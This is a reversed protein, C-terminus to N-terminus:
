IFTYPIKTYSPIPDLYKFTYSTCLPYYPLHLTYPITHPPNPHADNGPKLVLSIHTLQKFKNAEVLSLIGNEGSTDLKAVFTAISNDFATATLGPGESSSKNESSEEAQTQHTQLCLQILEILKLPFVNFDVLISQDRKLIHFDQEGVNMYYLFYPDREDTIEFHFMREM